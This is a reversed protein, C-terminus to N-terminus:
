GVEAVDYEPRREEGTRAVVWNGSVALQEALAEAEELTDFEVHGGFGSHPSGVYQGGHGLGFFVAEYADCCEGWGNEDSVHVAYKKAM